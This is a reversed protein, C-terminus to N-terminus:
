WGTSEARQTPAITEYKGYSRSSDLQFSTVQQAGLGHGCAQM